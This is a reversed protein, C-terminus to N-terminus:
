QMGTRPYRTYHLYIAIVLFKFRAPRATDCHGAGSWSQQRRHYQLQSLPAFVACALGCWGWSWLGRGSTWCCRGWCVEWSRTMISRVTYFGVIVPLQVGQESQNSHTTKTPNTVHWGKTHIPTPRASRTPNCNKGQCMEWILAADAPQESQHRRADHFTCLTTLALFLTTNRPATNIICQNPQTKEVAMRMSLIPEKKKRDNPKCISTGVVCSPTIPRTSNLIGPGCKHVVPIRRHRIWM